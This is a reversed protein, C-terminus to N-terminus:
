CLNVKKINKTNVLKCAQLHGITFASVHLSCSIFCMKSTTGFSPKIKYNPSIYNLSFKMRTSLLHLATPTHLYLLVYDTSTQASHDSTSGPRGVKQLIILLQNPPQTPGVAPRTSAFFLFSEREQWYVFVWIGDTSYCAVIGVLVDQSTIDYHITCVIKYVCHPVSYDIVPYENLLFFQLSSKFPM